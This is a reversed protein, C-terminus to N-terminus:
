HTAKGEARAQLEMQHKSKRLISYYDTHASCLSQATEMTVGQAVMMAEFKALAAGGIVAHSIQKSGESLSPAIGTM